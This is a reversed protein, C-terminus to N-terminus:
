EEPPAPPQALARAVAQEVIEALEERSIANSPPYIRPAKITAWLGFAFNVVMIIPFLILFITPLRWDSVSIAILSSVQFLNLLLLVIVFPRVWPHTRPLAKYDLKASWFSGQQPNNM